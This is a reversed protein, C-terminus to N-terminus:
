WCGKGSLHLSLFILGLYKDDCMWEAKFTVRKWMCEHGKLLGGTNGFKFKILEFHSNKNRLSKNDGQRCFPLHTCFDGDHNNERLEKLFSNRMVKPRHNDGKTVELDSLWHSQEKQSPTMQPKDSFDMEM